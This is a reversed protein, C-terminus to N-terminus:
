KGGNKKRLASVLGAMATMFAAIALLAANPQEVLWGTLAIIGISVAVVWWAWTEM